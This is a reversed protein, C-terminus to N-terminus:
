RDEELAIRIRRLLEDPEFPKRILRSMDLKEGELVRPDAYGSTLLVRAKPDIERMAKEAAPGNLRPMVVDLLVLDVSRERFLQLAEAGDEALVVDYGFRTLIKHVINRVLEDDEAVLITETGGRVAEEVKSGVESAKRETAPLYVKFSTGKGPETYVHVFGDHQQVIGYVTSLGLGTGDEAKTTFFPEFIRGRTEDDMGRGTDSVSLLVYRGPKAWPHVERYNGNVLVNETEITLRGGDPMADRANVCLNMFIQELQAPDASVLALQHGEILDIEISAPILRELMQMVGSAIANLSVPVKKTPQRRAFTLLQSTLRAARTTADLVEQAHTRTSSGKESEMLILSANAMISQLVNNFDHAIGGALQGIADMRQSQQLQEHISRSATVDRGVGYILGGPIDAWAHWDMWLYQGDARRIRIEMRSVNPQSGIEELLATITPMDDPHPLTMYDIQLLDEVSYGLVSAMTPNVRRFRGDFDAICLLDPSVEFFRDLSDGM